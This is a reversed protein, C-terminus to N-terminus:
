HQKNKSPPSIGTTQQDRDPFPPRQLIKSDQAIIKGESFDTATNIQGADTIKPLCSMQSTPRWPTGDSTQDIGTSTYNPSTRNSHSDGNTRQDFPHFQNKTTLTNSGKVVTLHQERTQRDVNEQLMVLIKHILLHM